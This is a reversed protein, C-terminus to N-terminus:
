QAGEEGTPKERELRATTAQDALEQRLKRFLDRCTVALAKADVGFVAALETPLKSCVFIELDAIVKSLQRSWAAAAASAEIFRGEDLAQRRRLAEAELEAKEADARRRRALDDTPRIGDSKGAPPEDRRDAPAGLQPTEATPLQSIEGTSASAAGIPREQAAQQAPDLSVALDREAREAWIRAERGEGIIAAASIKGDAIWRNVASRDRGVRAAFQSKTLLTKM